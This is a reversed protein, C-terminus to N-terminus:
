LRRRIGSRDGINSSQHVRAADLPKRYQLVASQDADDTTSVEEVADGVVSRSVDGLTVVCNSGANGGAQSVRRDEKPAIEWRYGDTVAQHM